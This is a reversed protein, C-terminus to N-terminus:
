QLSDNYIQRCPKYSTDSTSMFPNRLTSVQLKRRLLVLDSLSKKFLTFLNFHIKLQFNETGQIQKIAKNVAFAENVEILNSTFTPTNDNLDNVAVNVTAPGSKAPNGRDTAKM